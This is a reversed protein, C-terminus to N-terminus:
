GSVVKTSAQDASCPSGFCGHVSRVLAMARTYLAASHAVGTQHRLVCARLISVTRLLEIRIMVPYRHGVGM